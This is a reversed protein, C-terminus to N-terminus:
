TKSFNLMDKPKSTINQHVICVLWSLTRNQSDAHSRLPVGKGM